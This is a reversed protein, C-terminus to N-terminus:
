DASPAAPLEFWFSSGKGEVSQFGIRGGQAEVLERALALGLGTGGIERTDSNDARFFREFIHPQQEAPIGIGSDTVAVMVYGNRRKAELEVTGGDPSYKVANSLLNAVVQSTRRPDGVAALPPEDLRLRIDHADSQHSFLEAQSELLHGLSFPESSVTMAREEGRQLYTLFDDILSSLRTAERHIVSLGEDLAQGDGPRSLLLEAFGLISALPTRLEHSVTDMLQSKLREAEREDSVDRVVTLRGILGGRESEVPTM